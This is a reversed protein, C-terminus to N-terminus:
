FCCFMCGYFLFFLVAIFLIAMHSNQFHCSYSARFRSSAKHVKLSQRMQELVREFLEKDLIM